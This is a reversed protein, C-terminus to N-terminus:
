NSVFLFSLKLRLNILVNYIVAVRSCLGGDAGSMNGDEDIIGGGGKRKRKIGNRM